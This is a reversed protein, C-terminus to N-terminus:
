FIYTNTPHQAQTGPCRECGGSQAQGTGEGRGPASAPEAEAGRPKIARGQPSRFLGGPVIVCKLAGRGGAGSSDVMWDLWWIFLPNGANILFDAHKWYPEFTFMCCGGRCFLGAFSFCRCGLGAAEKETKGVPCIRELTRLPSLLPFGHPTRM